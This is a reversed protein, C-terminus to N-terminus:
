PAQRSCRCLLSVSLVALFWIPLTGQGEEATLHLFSLLPPGGVFVVWLSECQGWVPVKWMGVSIWCLAGLSGVCLGLCIWVSGLSPGRVSGTDGFLFRGCVWVSRACPGGLSGCESWLPVEWQGVSVRCLSRGCVWLSGACSGKCLGVSLGYLSRQCVWVLGM